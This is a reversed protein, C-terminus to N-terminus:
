KIIQLKISYIKRYKERDSFNHVRCFYKFKRVTVDGEKTEGNEVFEYSLRKGNQTLNVKVLQGDGADVGKIRFLYNKLWESFTKPLCSKQNYKDCNRLVRNIYRVEKSIYMRM